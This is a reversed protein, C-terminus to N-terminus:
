YAFIMHGVRLSVPKALIWENTCKDDYYFQAGNTPDSGNMAEKAAEIAEPEAPKDIWGNEVPTFQYYEDIKQYIVSEISNPWDSSKVRNMVVSGVAVQAEFPEGQAEATILRALLDLEGSEAAPAAATKAEAAPAAPAPSTVPAAPEVAPAPKAESTAAPAAPASTEVGAPAAPTEPSATKVPAPDTSEVPAQEAPKVAATDAPQASSNGQKNESQNEQNYRDIDGRSAAYFDDMEQTLLKSSEEEYDKTGDNEASRTTEQGASITDRDSNNNESTNLATTFAYILLVVGLIVCAFFLAPKAKIYKNM